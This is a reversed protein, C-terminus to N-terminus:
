SEPKWGRREMEEAMAELEEPTEAWFVGDEDVGSQAYKEAYFEQWMAPNAAFMNRELSDEIDQEAEKEEALQLIKLM